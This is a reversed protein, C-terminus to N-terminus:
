GEAPRVWYSVQVFGGVGVDRLDADRERLVDFGAVVVWADGAVWDLFLDAYWGPQGYAEPDFLLRTSGDLLLTGDPQLDVLLSLGADGLTREDVAIWAGDIQVDVRGGIREIAAQPNIRAFRLTADRQHRYRGVLELRPRAGEAPPRWRTGGGVMGYMTPDLTDTLLGETIGADEARADFRTIDPDLDETTLYRYSSYVQGLVDFRWAEHPMWRSLTAADALGVSGGQAQVDVRANTALEPLANLRGQVLAGARDLGGSAVLVEGVASAQARPRTIALIPGGGVRARPRTTFLDPAFGAWLGVDWGGSSRHLAQMGDVLRPGGHEVPHRGLTLTWDGPALSVGLSRVHAIEVGPEGNPDLRTRGDVLLRPELTGDGLSWRARESLLLDVDGDGIAHSYAGAVGVSTVARDGASAATALALLLPVLM